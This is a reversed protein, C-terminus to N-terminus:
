GETTESRNGAMPFRSNLLCAEGGSRQRQSLLGAQRNWVSIESTGTKLIVEDIEGKVPITVAFDGTEFFGFVASFHFGVYLKGNEEEAYYGCFGEPFSGPYFGTLRVSDATVEVSNIGAGECAQFGGLKWGYRGILFVLLLVIVAVALGIFIKVPTSVKAKM